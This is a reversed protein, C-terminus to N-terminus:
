GLAVSRLRPYSAFDMVVKNSLSEVRYRLQPFIGNPPLSREFSFINRAHRIVFASMEEPNLDM